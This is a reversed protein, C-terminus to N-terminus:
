PLRGQARAVLINSIHSDNSQLPGFKTELARHRKEAFDKLDDQNEDSIKIAPVDRFNRRANDDDQSIFMCRISGGIEAPLGEITTRFVEAIENRDNRGCEDVGDIIIYTKDCSSLVTHIM